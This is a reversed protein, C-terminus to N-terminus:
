RCVGLCYHCDVMHETPLLFYYRQQLCTSDKRGHCSPQSLYCLGCAVDVDVRAMVVMRGTILEGVDCVGIRSSATSMFHDYPLFRCLCRPTLSRTVCPLFFNM